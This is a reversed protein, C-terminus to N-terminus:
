CLEFIIWILSYSSGQLRRVQMQGFNYELIANFLQKM